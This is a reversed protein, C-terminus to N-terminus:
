ASPGLLRSIATVNLAAKPVFSSIEVYEPLKAGDATRESCHDNDGYPGLGDLTPLDQWLLNGDSLGGREEPETESGLSAGAQQWVSFLADTAANRPWPRSESLIEVSVRCAYGDGASRVHSTQALALLASKAAGYVEPSFARFEGEALAEHPVRNLGGGGAISGVNFTLHRAYDTLAAVEQLSHGLQVIANAGWPHKGGAHAGRGSVRLRWTARGKRAVVLQRATGRRGEAEFVLAARAHKGLRQLCVEGFDHSLTEESSNWFLQWTVRDFLDPTLARLAELVLWMMVTGGKIDHTGPGFIRDGEPQWRFQNREEEEPPFVTDLHSVFALSETSSGPRSMALHDGWAPNTSPVREAAFGLPAFMAETLDGVRNVGTRNGTYSNTQVLERLHHLAQPMRAELLSYLASRNM